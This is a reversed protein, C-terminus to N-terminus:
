NIVKILCALRYITFGAMGGATNLIVDDINAVRFTFLFQNLEILTSLAAAAAVTLFGSTYWKFGSMRDILMTVLIGFPVFLLIDGILIRLVIAPSGYTYIRYISLLPEVNYNRGGPGQPGFSAGYNWAFFTVYFLGSMYIVLLLIVIKLPINSRGKENFPHDSM